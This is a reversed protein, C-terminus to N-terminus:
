QGKQQDRKVLDKVLSICLQELDGDVDRIRALISYEVELSRM